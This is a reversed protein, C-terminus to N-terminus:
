GWRFYKIRKNHPRTNHIVDHDGCYVVISSEQFLKWKEIAKEERTSFGEDHAPGINTFIGVSPKIMKQIKHMEGPKSIGAEVIAMDHYSKFQLVSLPVGIQSNFSKPSRIIRYKESLMQSLWEKVITKANSGTIGIVDFSFSRRHAAAIQQFAVLTDSVLLVNSGHMCIEPFSEEEIIFQRIGKSYLDNIYHHGNHRPGRLAIFIAKDSIMARRSDILYYQIYRQKSAILEKGKTIRVLDQFNFM